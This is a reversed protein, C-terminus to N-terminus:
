PASARAAALEDATGERLRQKWRLFPREVILYAPFALALSLGYGIVLTVFFYPWASLGLTLHGIAKLVGFHFLYVAYSLRETWVIAPRNWWRAPSAFGAFLLLAAALAALVPNFVITAVDSRPLQDLALALPPLAALGAFAGLRRRPAPALVIWVLAAIMGGGFAVLQGPLNAFTVVDLAFDRMAAHATGAFAIRWAISAAVLLALAWALRRARLATNGASSARLLLLAICPLAVYFQADTSMTWYPPAVGLATGRFWTQVLALHAALDLATPPVAAQPIVGALAASVITAFAYLPYIRLFRDRAFRRWSPLARGDVIARLFPRGLLFGSLTFFCAVAFRGVM